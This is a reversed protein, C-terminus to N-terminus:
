AAAKLPEHRLRQWAAVYAQVSAVYEAHSWALPSVSLPAGSEPDIQEPLLGTAQARDEAWELLTRAAALDDPTSAAMAYYQALWLTTVFWPNGPTDAKSERQYLDNEYRALGGADSKCWLKDQVAAVTSRVRPDNPDLMGFLVLGLVSADLVTDREYGGHQPYLSRSFCQREADWLHTLTAAKM